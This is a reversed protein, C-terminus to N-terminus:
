GWFRWWPRPAVDEGAAAGSRRGAHGSTGQGSAGAPAHAAATTAVPAATPPARRLGIKQLAKACIDRHEPFRAACDVFVQEAEDLRGLHMLCEGCSFAAVVSDPNIRMSTRFDELASAADGREMHMFARDDLAEFSAPFLTLVPDDGGIAGRQEGAEGAAGASSSHASAPAMSPEATQGTVALFREVDTQRLYEVFGQLDGDRVGPSCLVDWGTRFSAGRIPVHYLSVPLTDVSAADPRERVQAHLLCHFCEGLEPWTDIALIRVVSWLGDKNRQVIVDGPQM